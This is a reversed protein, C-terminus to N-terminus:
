KPENNTNALYEERIKKALELTGVIFVGRHGCCRCEMHPDLMALGGIWTIELSGCIPCFKIEMENGEKEGM